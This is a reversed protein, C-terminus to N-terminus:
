LPYPKNKNWHVGREYGEKENLKNLKMLKYRSKLSVDNLHYEENLDKKANYKM